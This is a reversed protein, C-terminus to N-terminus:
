NNVGLYLEYRDSTRMSMVVIRLQELNRSMRLHDIIGCMTCFLVLFLSVTSFAVAVSIETPDM